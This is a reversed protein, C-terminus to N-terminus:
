RTTAIDSIRYTHDAQQQLTFTYYTTITGAATNTATALRDLTFTTAAAPDYNDMYLREVTVTTSVNASITLNWYRDPKAPSTSFTDFISQTLYPAARSIQDRPSTDSADICTLYYATADAVAEADSTDPPETVCAPAAPLAPTAPM